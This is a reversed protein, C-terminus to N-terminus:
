TLGDGFERLFVLCSVPLPPESLSATCRAVKELGYVVRRLM